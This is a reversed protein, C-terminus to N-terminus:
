GRFSYHLFLEDGERRLDLLRAKRLAPAEFGAGGAPTPATNGGVAVPCVTVRIEDLLDEELFTWILEGGGEVQ